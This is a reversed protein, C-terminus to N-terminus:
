LFLSNHTLSDLQDFLKEIDAPDQELLSLSMQHYNKYGLERAVENREKVLELLDSQVLAGIKKHAKWVAELEKNDTSASLIDEIENDTYKKGNVEARFNSFKKEVLTALSIIKNLKATDVQNPVYSNYLVLLQRNLLSDKIEDSEKISKLTQFDEKNAFIM